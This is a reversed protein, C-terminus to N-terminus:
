KEREQERAASVQELAKEASAQVTWEADNLAQKLSATTEPSRIMGLARAAEGRLEPDESELANLLLPVAEGANLRGLAEASKVKIETPAKHLLDMLKAIVEGTSYNMEGLLEVLFQLKRSDAEPLMELVVPLAKDKLGLIVQATRAPLYRESQLLNRIVEEDGLTILAEVAALQLEIEKSALLELLPYYADKWGLYSVLEAAAVRIDKKSTSLWSTVAHKRAQFIQLVEEKPLEEIREMIEPLNQELDDSNLLKEMSFCSSESASKISRKRVVLLVIILFVAFLALMILDM